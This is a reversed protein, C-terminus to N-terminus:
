SRSHKGLQREKQQWLETINSLSIWGLLRQHETWQLPLLKPIHALSIGAPQRGELVASTVEPSLFALRLAQRVVKPHMRNADALNEISEYTGDRLSHMWVHARVISQILAENHSGDPGGDGEIAAAADKAKALWAVKIEKPMGDVDTPGHSGAITLTLQDRSIVVREVAGFPDQGINTGGREQHPQLAIHTGFRVHALRDAINRPVAFDSNKLTPSHAV